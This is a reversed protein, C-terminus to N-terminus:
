QSIKRRSRALLARAGLSSILIFMLLVFAAGWARTIGNPDAQDAQTFIYVPINQLAQGFINFSTTPPAISSVLLLPATEGAARAVALVTGTLIGGMATPLIVGTVTRWRSMGLAESAERLSRPVLLLVEQSSRAILPLMIIALAASGAFGTQKHGVVLLGFVFLGVVITPLGNMVDLVLRMARGTRRGAFETLYLAVLLCLLM